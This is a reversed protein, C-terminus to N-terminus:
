MRQWEPSQKPERLLTLAKKVGRAMTYEGLYLYEEKELIAIAENIKAEAKRDRRIVVLSMGIMGLFGGIILGFIFGFM